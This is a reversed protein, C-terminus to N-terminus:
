VLRIMLRKTISHISYRLMLLMSAVKGYGVQRYANFIMKASSFRKASKSKNCLRYILLPENLGLAYGYKKLIRLWVAYDEHMFGLPFNIMVDCRVIVSSCSMLNRKLLDRYTLERKAKLVYSSIRGEYIYTTATYSIVANNETMFAVQKKLKDAQWLDDSDLFAIYEGKALSVGRNRTQAVGLNCENTYIFIRSDENAFAKVIQSTSDTSYDNVIILEWDQFTQAIVSKISEEITAEAQYAPM